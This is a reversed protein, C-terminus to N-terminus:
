KLEIKKIKNNLQDLIDQTINLESKGVVIYKKQVIMSISNKKSYETLIPNIEQFIKSTSDM